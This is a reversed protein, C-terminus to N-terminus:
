TISVVAGLFFDFLRGQFNFNKYEWDGLQSRSSVPGNFFLFVRVLPQNHEGGGVERALLPSVCDHCPLAVLAASQEVTLAIAVRPFLDPDRWSPAMTGDPRNLEWFPVGRRTWGIDDGLMREWLSGETPRHLEGTRILSQWM